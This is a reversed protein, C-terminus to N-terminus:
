RFGCEQITVVFLNIIETKTMGLFSVALVLVWLWKNLLLTTLKDVQTQAFTM